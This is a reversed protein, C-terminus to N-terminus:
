WSIDAADGSGGPSRDKGYSFLLFDEGAPGPSQYNYPTAWPDNPLAKRLYPGNWRTEGAPSVVLARLGQTTSPYHGTHLRYQDLAKVLSDMQARATTVESSSLQRFLNPAVIGALLGIIVIVVLLELLTFGRLVNHRPKNFTKM